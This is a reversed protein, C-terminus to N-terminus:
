LNCIQDDIWNNAAQVYGSRALIQVYVPALKIADFQYGDKMMSVVVQKFSIKDLIAVAIRKGYEIIMSTAERQNLYRDDRGIMSKPMKKLASLMQDELTKMDWGCLVNPATGAPVDKMVYQVAGELVVCQKCNISVRKM